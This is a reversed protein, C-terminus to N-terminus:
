SISGRTPPFRRLYFDLMVAGAASVLSLCASVLLADRYCQSGECKIEDDDTATTPPPFAAVLGFAIGLSGIGNSLDFLGDNQAVHTVGFMQVVGAAAAVAMAGYLTGTGFVLLCFLPTSSIYASYILNLTGSAACLIAVTRVFNLSKEFVKTVHAIAVRGFTSGLSILLVLYAGTPVGFSGAIQIILNIVLLCSGFHAAQFFFLCHFRVTRIMEFTQLVHLSSTLLSGSISLCLCPLICVNMDEQVSIGAAQAIFQSKRDLFSSPISSLHSEQAPDIERCRILHDLSQPIGMM